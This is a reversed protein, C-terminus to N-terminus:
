YMLGNSNNTVKLLSKTNAWLEYLLCAFQSLTRIKSCTQPFYTQLNFRHLQLFRQVGHVLWFCDGPPTRYSLTRLLKAFNVSFCRHLLRQKLSTAPRLGSFKAFDKLVGKKISCRHISCRHSSSVLQGLVHHVKASVRLRKLYTHQLRIPCCCSRM